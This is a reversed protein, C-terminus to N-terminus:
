SSSLRSLLELHLDRVAEVFLDGAATRKAYTRNGRREAEVLSLDSFYNLKTSLWINISRALRDQRILADKGFKRLREAAAKEVVELGYHEEDMKHKIVGTHEMSQHSSPVKLFLLQSALINELHEARDDLLDLRVTICQFRQIEGGPDDAIRQVYDPLSMEAARKMEREKRHNELYGSDRGAHYEPGDWLSSAVYQILIRCEDSSLLSGILAIGRLRATAGTTDLIVDTPEGGRRIRRLERSITAVMQSYPGGEDATGGISITHLQEPRYLGGVQGRLWGEIEDFWKRWREDSDRVFYIESPLTERIGKLIRQRPDGVWTLLV